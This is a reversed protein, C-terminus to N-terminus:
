ADRACRFGAFIQRRIPFDWNRFTTRVASPHTAWSGGRLVRYEPGFFVESYERYPFSRFGPYARFDSATWEWVGGLMGRAGHRSVVDDTTGVPAPAFRRTGDHWLDAGTFPTGDAAAEWEVETPLRSGAWRAYADAEYWCVHQVPEDPPVPETRGFRRRVWEGDSRPAWFPPGELEADARWAWGDDTWHASDRYGGAEVFETYAGNTIATTDIRYAPLQVVHAPRENDYAWPDTDTGLVHEGAPVLVDSPLAVRTGGTRRGLGDAGRHAFDAMLPLTALLTEVHQHEHQVVMGYVFGGALLADDDDLEVTDLVELVRERVAADFARAGAADLIDLTPRDRRPHKFADYVDDFALDTPAAGALERVLWLEEYHGIHAVDWCLPSMLESVQGRQEADPVPALLDLTRRRTEELSAVIGSKTVVDAPLSPVGPGITSCTTPPAARAGSSARQTNRPPTSPRPTRRWGSSRSSRRTSAGGRQTQSRLTTCRTARPPM